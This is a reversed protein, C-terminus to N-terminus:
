RLYDIKHVTQPSPSPDRKKKSVSSRETMAKAYELYRMGIMKPDNSPLQEYLVSGNEMKIKKLKKSGLHLEEIYNLLQKRKAEDM